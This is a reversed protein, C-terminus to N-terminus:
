ININITFKREMGKPLICITGFVGVSYVHKRINDATNIVSAENTEVLM